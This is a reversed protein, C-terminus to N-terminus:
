KKFELKRISILEQIVINILSQEYFSCFVCYIYYDPITCDPLFIAVLLVIDSLEPLGWWRRVSIRLSSSTSGTYYFTCQRFLSRILVVSWRLTIWWVPHQPQRGVVDTEEREKSAREIRKRDRTGDENSVNSKKFESEVIPLSTL